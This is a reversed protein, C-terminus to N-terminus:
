HSKKKNYALSTCNQTVTTERAEVCKHFSLNAFLCVDKPSKKVEYMMCHKKKQSVTCHLLTAPSKIVECLMRHKNKAICHLAIPNRTLHTPTGRFYRLRGHCGRHFRTMILSAWGCLASWFSGNNVRNLVRGEGRLTYARSPDDPPASHGSAGSTM